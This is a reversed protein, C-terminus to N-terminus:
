GRGLACGQNALKDWLKAAQYISDMYPDKIAYYAEADNGLREALQQKIAAYALRTTSDARLYDRFILPYQQNLRGAERIHINAKRGGPQQQFYRKALEVSDDDVGVLSDAVIDARSKFGADILRSFYVPANLDSVTIQIDIIDKAPLGSVATSGIHDISIVADGLV